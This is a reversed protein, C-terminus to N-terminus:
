GGATARDRGSGQWCLAEASAPSGRGVQKKWVFKLRRFWHKLSMCNRALVQIFCYLFLSGLWLGM